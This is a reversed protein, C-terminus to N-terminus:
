EWDVLRLNFLADNYMLDICVDILM